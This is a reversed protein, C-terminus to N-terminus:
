KGRGHQIRSSDDIQNHMQWCIVKALLIPLNRGIFATDFASYLLVKIFVLDHTDHSQQRRIPASRQRRILALISLRNLVSSFSRQIIKLFSKKAFIGSAHVRTGFRLRKALLYGSGIWPSHRAGSTAMNTGPFHGTKTTPSSRENWEMSSWVDLFTLHELMSEFDMCKVSRTTVTGMNCILQSDAPISYARAIRQVPDVELDAADISMLEEANRVYADVRYEVLLIADADIAQLEEEGLGYYSSVHAHFDETMAKTKWNHHPL